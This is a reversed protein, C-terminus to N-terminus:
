LGEQRTYSTTLDEEDDQSVETRVEKRAHFKEM